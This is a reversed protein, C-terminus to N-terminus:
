IAFLCETSCVIDTQSDYLDQNVFLFDSPPEWAVYDFEIFSFRLVNSHKYSLFHDFM